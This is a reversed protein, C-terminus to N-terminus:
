CAGETVLEPDVRSGPKPKTSTNKDQLCGTQEELDSFNGIEKHEEWASTCFGFDM